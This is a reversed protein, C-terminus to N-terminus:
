RRGTVAEAGAEDDDDDDDDDDEGDDDEVAEADSVESEEPASEEVGDGASEEAAPGVEGALPLPTLVIDERGYDSYILDYVHDLFDFKDEEPDHGQKKLDEIEKVRKKREGELWENSAEVVKKVSKHTRTRERQQEPSGGIKLQKTVRATLELTSHSTTYRGDSCAAILNMRKGAPMKESTTRKKLGDVAAAAECCDLMVLVDCPAACLIKELDLYSQSKRLLSGNSLKLDKKSVLGGSSGGHGSYFFIFLDQDTLDALRTEVERMMKKPSNPEAKHAEFNLGVPLTLISCMRGAGNKCSETFAEDFDSIGYSKEWATCLGVVRNYTKVEAQTAGSGSATAM